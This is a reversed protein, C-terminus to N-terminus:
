HIFQKRCYPCRDNQALIEYPQNGLFHGCHPCTYDRQFKRNLEQRKQPISSADRYAKIFFLVSVIIALAYLVVFWMSRGGTTISLVIAAMTILGTTSRLTNFKREDIQLAISQNEYDDWVQQLHRIDAPAVALIDKWSLVYRDTGLEIKDAKSITKSEVMQGNVYTYNNIDLNRIQISDGTYTILCHQQGVTAPVSGSAGSLTDESNVTLKLRSTATDRGVIIEMYM